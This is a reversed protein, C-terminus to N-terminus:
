HSSNLRTSKRDPSVGAPWSARTVSVEFDIVEKMQRLFWPDISTLEHIEEVTYGTSLAFRVYNLRDPTPTILKNAILQPDFKESGFAKGTELSRMGKWLAEKFTRGIAM